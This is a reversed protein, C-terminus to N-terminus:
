FVIEVGMRFTRPSSATISSEGGLEIGGGGTVGSLEPDILENRSWIWVNRLSGFVSARSVGMSGALDEPLEFRALIERLKFWDGDYFFASRASSQPYRGRESGDLRYRVPYPNGTIEEDRYIGNFTSWVSGWDFVGNGGAWDALASLNLRNWLTISTNFSGFKDPSASLYKGSEDTMYQRESGDNLGDGNTDVPTTLFWTGVPKGESVYKQGEASFDAAGGMDTVENDVTNFTAGISWAFNQTNVLNVNLALEIGTNSIEGLNRLQTGQGTVPQEPVRFFADSTTADFYTFNLGVRNNFLAADFGAEITSTVEPRLDENGPNQFRPASEGRFPIASFSRDRLFPEPFKGTEGYAARVKFEDLFGLGDMFAEDSVVYSGTFKPYTQYDVQDGFTSGADVRLGGGIFFKDWFGLQEDLYFGGNFLETNSESASVESAADFDPSGPLAFGTGIADVVSEDDRFGQAGVTLSSTIEDNVDTSWTTAVDLSVSQFERQFRELQGIGNESPTFGIPEFVRQQNTRSDVGVTLRTGINEAWQYRAGASVLFRNVEETIDPLLFIRLAENLDSAGSFFLADGVEFTTLPDAIATGNFVREFDSRTFSGGFDVTLKDSLSAQMGGSLNYQVNSNKPQTGDGQNIRGSLRYTVDATGGNVGVYYSQVHGNRFYEDQMLTPSVEGAAVQDPFTLPMDFIYKLEPLEVGQEIRATVRAPGPTGKKTFIQIVGTAADSGYLTSAAGGKTIEIREIDSVMLDALASSQEGGTGAATAQDSDVRVGDIYVVPTQAGIVSSTGRFNILSGTGPQSSTANVTAGAVRGQLLQAVNQVPADEIAAADIVDVTTGLARRQTAEGVGTVVLEDLSIATQSLQFDLSVSAGAGVTVNATATGYGILEVRVTHSGAPVNLLVYRGSSNTLGGVGTGQVLVQAESLPRGSQADTVQGALTGTDQASLMGPLGVLLAAALSPLLARNWRFVSEM